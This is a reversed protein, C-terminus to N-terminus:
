ILKLWLENSKLRLNVLIKRYKHNHFEFVDGDDGCRRQQGQCGAGPALGAKWFDILISFGSDYGV